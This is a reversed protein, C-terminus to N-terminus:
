VILTHRTRAHAHVRTHFSIPTRAHVQGEASDLERLKAKHVEDDTFFSLVEFFYRRPHANVDLHKTVLERVTCPLDVAM